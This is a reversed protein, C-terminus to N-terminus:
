LRGGRPPRPNFNRDRPCVRRSAVTDGGERPAHISIMTTLYKTASRADGGERPAHISIRLKEGFM